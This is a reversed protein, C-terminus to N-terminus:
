SELKKACLLIPLQMMMVVTLIALHCHSVYFDFQSRKTTFRRATVIIGNWWVNCFMRSIIMATHKASVWLRAHVSRSILWWRVGFLLDTQGPPHFPKSFTILRTTGASLTPVTTPTCLQLCLIAIKLLHLLSAICTGLLTHTFLVTLLNINSSRLSRAPAHFYLLSHLYTPQSYHLTNFTINAIKLNIRYKIPLLSSFFHIPVPNTPILCSM